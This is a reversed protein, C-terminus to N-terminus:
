RSEWSRHRSCRLPVINETSEGTRLLDRVRLDCCSKFFGPKRLNHIEHCTPREAEVEVIGAPIHGREFVGDQALQVFPYVRDQLCQLFRIRCCIKRVSDFYSHEIGRGEAHERMATLRIVTKFWFRQHDTCDARRYFLVSHQTGGWFALGASM